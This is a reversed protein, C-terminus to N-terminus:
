LENEQECSATVKIQLDMIQDWDVADFRKARVREDEDARSM